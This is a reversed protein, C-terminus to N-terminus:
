RLASRAFYLLLNFVSQPAPVAEICRLMDQYFNEIEDVSYHPFDSYAYHLYCKRSIEASNVEYVCGDPRGSIRNISRILSEPQIRRFAIDLHEPIRDM